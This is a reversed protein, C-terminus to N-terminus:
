RMRSAEFGEGTDFLEHKEPRPPGMLSVGLRAGLTGRFLVGCGGFEKLEM